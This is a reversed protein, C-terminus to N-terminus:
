QLARRGRSCTVRHTSAHRQQAAAEFVPLLQLQKLPLRLDQLVEFMPARLRFAADQLPVPVPLLLALTRLVASCLVACSLTSRAQGVTFGESGAM